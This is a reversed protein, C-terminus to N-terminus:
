NNSKKILVNMTRCFNTFRGNHYHAADVLYKGSADRPCKELYQVYGSVSTQKKGPRGKVINGDKRCMRLLSAYIRADGTSIFGCMDKVEDYTKCRLLDDQYYHFLRASTRDKPVYRERRPLGTRKLLDAYIETIDCSAYGNWLTIM